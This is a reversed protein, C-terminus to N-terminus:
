AATAMSGSGLFKLAVKEADGVRTDTAQWVVGMGGEGLLRELRYSGVMRGKALAM